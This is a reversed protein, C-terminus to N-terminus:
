DDEDTNNKNKNNKNKNNPHDKNSPHDEGKDPGKGPKPGKVKEPKNLWGKGPKDTKDDEVLNTGKWIQGWGKGALRLHLWEDAAEGLSNDECDEGDDPNCEDGNEPDIDDEPEVVDPTQNALATNIALMVEGFGFGDKCVKETVWSLSVGDIKDAIRQAIPHVRDSNESCYVGGKGWGNGEGEEDDGDGDDGDIVVEIADVQFVAKNDENIVWHGHIVVYVPDTDPDYNEDEILAALDECQYGEPIPVTEEVGGDTKIILSVCEGSLEDYVFELAIGEITDGSQKAFAATTMSLTLLVVFILLIHVKKM